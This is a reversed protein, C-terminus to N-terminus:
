AHERPFIPPSCAAAFSVLSSMALFIAVLRECSPERRLLRSASRALRLGAWTCCRSLIARGLPPDETRQGWPAIGGVVAISEDIGM